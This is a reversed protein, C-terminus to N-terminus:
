ADEEADRVSRMLRQEHVSRVLRQEHPTGEVMELRDNLHCSLVHALEDRTPEGIGEDGFWGNRVSAPLAGWLTRAAVALDDVPGEDNVRAGLERLRTRGHLVCFLMMEADEWGFAVTPYANSPPDPPPLFPNRSITV